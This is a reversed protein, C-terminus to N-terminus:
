QVYLIEWARNQFWRSYNLADVYTHALVRFYLPQLLRSTWNKEEQGCNGFDEITNEARGWSWVAQTFLNETRRLLRQPPPPWNKLATQEDSSSVRRKGSDMLSSKQSCTAIMMASFCGDFLYVSEKVTDMSQIMMSGGLPSMLPDSLSKLNVYMTLVVWDACSWLM